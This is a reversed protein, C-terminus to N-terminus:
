FEGAGAARLQVLWYDLLGSNTSDHRALVLLRGHVLDWRATVTGSGGVSAPLVIDLNRVAGSSPDVARITLPKSGQSSRALALVNAGVTEDASAWTPAILGTASGLRQGEEASLAPGTPTAFFLGPEGGSTTPLGLPNSVTVRPTPAVFVVRADRLPSWAIPAVPLPGLADSQRGIDAIYRFGSVAGGATTDAACLAVFGAGGRGTAAQTLFAVWHGDAAWNYSGAVIEAPLTVLEVPTRPEGDREADVLMLRSRSASLSGGVLRVTVLLHKGDPTWALDHVEEVGNSTGSSSTSNGSVIPLEFVTVAESGDAATVLVDTVRENSSNAESVPQRAQAYAVRKGDPSIVIIPARPNSAAAFPALSGTVPDLIWAEALPRNAANGGAVPVAMSLSLRGDALFSANSISAGPYAPKLQMADPRRLWMSVRVQMDVSVTIQREDDISAPNTLMLTHQGSAVVTSLPTKGREHGDIVITAGEPESAVDLRATRSPDAAASATSVPLWDPVGAAVAIEGGSVTWGALATLSAGLLGAAALVIWRFPRSRFWRPTHSQRGVPATPMHSRELEVTVFLLNM